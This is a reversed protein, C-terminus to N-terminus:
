LTKVDPLDNQFLLFCNPELYPQLIEVAQQVTKAVFVQCNTQKFGQMLYPTNKGVLVAFHCVRGLTIGCQVNISKCQKGCEVVGQCVVLKTGQFQQLTQACNEVGRVSANYSDDVVYFKGNHSIEMRHKTQALLKCRSAVTQGDVGLLKCVQLCMAFNEVVGNYVHPLRASFAKGDLTFQVNTGQPSIKHSIQLGQCSEVKRCNGFAMLQQCNSDASNFVCVGDEPLYLPLEGKTAVVNQMSKFTSLHQACAGTVIGIKPKFLKCLKAVDGRKRAGFELVLYNFGFLSQNNVFRAIGLPTNFSHPTCIANPLLTALMEKTCTKGYSGTIAVVTIGSQLIKRQAKAVFRKGIASELPLCVAWSCLAFVPVFVLLFGSSFAVGTACFILLFAVLNRWIRATFVLPVKRKKTATVLACVLYVLATAWWPGKCVAVCVLLLQCIAIKAFYATALVKFFGRWPKYGVSQLYRFSELSVVTGLVGCLLNM